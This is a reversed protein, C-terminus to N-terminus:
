CNNVRLKQLLVHGSSGKRKGVMLQRVRPFLNSEQAGKETMAPLCHEMISFWASSLRSPPLQLTYVPLSAPDSCNHLGKIEALTPVALAKRSVSLLLGLESRSFIKFCLCFVSCSLSNATSHGPTCLPHVFSKGRIKNESSILKM